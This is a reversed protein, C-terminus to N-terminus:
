RRRPRGYFSITLLTGGLIIILLAASFIWDRTTSNSGTLALEPQVVPACLKEYISITGVPDAVYLSGCGGYALGWIGPSAGFGTNPGIIRKVPAIDGNSSSAYFGLFAEGTSSDFDTVTVEGTVPSVAVDQPVNITSALGVISQSPAVNGQAGPAWYDVSQNGRNAVWIGGSPTVDLGVPNNLGTSAGNIVRIPAVNGISNPPFVDISNSSYDLVYINGAEDVSADVANSFTTSSGSIEGLSSGSSDFVYIKGVFFDTGVYIRGDRAATVFFASSVGNVTLLPTASGTANESYIILQGASIRTVFIKGDAGVSVGYSGSSIGPNPVTITRTPAIDEDSAWASTAFGFSLLLTTLLVLLSRRPFPM